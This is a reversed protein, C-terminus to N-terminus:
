GAAPAPDVAEDEDRGRAPLFRWSIGAACSVVLAALWFAPRMATVFAHRAAGAVEAGQGPPLRQAAQLARGV